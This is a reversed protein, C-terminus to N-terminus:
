YYLITVVKCATLCMYFYETLIIIVMNYPNIDNGHQVPCESAKTTEANNQGHQVPCQSPKDLPKTAPAAGKNHMPCEAPPPSNTNVTKIDVSAQASVSNGM